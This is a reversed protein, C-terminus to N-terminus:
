QRGRDLEGTLVQWGDGRKWQFLGFTTELFVREFRFAALSASLSELDSFNLPLLTSSINGICRIAIWLEDVPRFQKASKRSVIDPILSTKATAVFGVDLNTRWEAYPCFRLYLVQLYTRMLPTSFYRVDYDIEKATLEHRHTGIFAGIEHLFDGHQRQPPVSGYFHLTADVSALDPRAARFAKSALEFKDGESEVQHRGYSGIMEGSDYSTIELGIQREGIKVLFDPTEGLKPEEDPRVGLRALILDLTRQELTKQASRTM